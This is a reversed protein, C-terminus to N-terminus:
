ITRYGLQLAGKVISLNQICDRYVQHTAGKIAYFTSSPPLEHKVNKPHQLLGSWFHSCSLEFIRPHGFSTCVWPKAQQVSWFPAVQRIALTGFWFRNHARTRFSEPCRLERPFASRPPVMESSGFSASSFSPLRFHSTLPRCCLPPPLRSTAHKRTSM